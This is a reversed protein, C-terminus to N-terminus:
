LLRCVSFARPQVGFTDVALPTRVGEEFAASVSAGTSLTPITPHPLIASAWAAGIAVFGPFRSRRPKRDPVASPALLEGCRNGM